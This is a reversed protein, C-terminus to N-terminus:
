GLLLLLLCVALGLGRGFLFVFLSPWCWFWFVFVACFGCVSAAQGPCLWASVFLGKMRTPIIAVCGSRGPGRTPHERAEFAGLVIGRDDYPMADCCRVLIM